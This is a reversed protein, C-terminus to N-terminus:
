VNSSGEFIGNLVILQCMGKQKATGPPDTFRGTGADKGFGNIALIFSRIPFGTILAM